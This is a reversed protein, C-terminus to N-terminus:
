GDVSSALFRIAFSPSDRLGALVKAAEEDQDSLLSSAAALRVLEDGDQLLSRLAKKKMASDFVRDLAIIAAFRVRPNESALNKMIQDRNEPRACRGLAACVRAFQKPSTDRKISAFLSAVAKPSPVARLYDLAYIVIPPAAPTQFDPDNLITTARYAVEPDESNRAAELAKRARPGRTRLRSSADERKHFSDDGLQQILSAVQRGLEENSNNLTLYQIVAETSPQIGAVRLLREIQLFELQRDLLADVLVPDVFYDENVKSAVDGNFVAFEDILGHLTQRTSYNALHWSKERAPRVLKGDGELVRLWFDQPLKISPLLDGNLYTTVTRRRLDVGCVLSYWKDVELKLPYEHSFDQDNFTVTLNGSPNNINAGICFSIWRSYRGGSLINNNGNKFSMAKFRLAITFARFDLSRTRITPTQEPFGGYVGNGFLANGRFTPSDYNDMLLGNGSKGTGENENGDFQFRAVAEPVAFSRTLGAGLVFIAVIKPLLKVISDGLFAMIASVGWALNLTLHPKGKM